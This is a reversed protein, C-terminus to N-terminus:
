SVNDNKICSCIETKIGIYGATTIKNREGFSHSMRVFISGFSFFFGNQSPPHVFTSFSLDNMCHWKLRNLGISPARRSITTTQPFTVTSKKSSQHTKLFIVWVRKKTFLITKLVMINNASVKGLAKM